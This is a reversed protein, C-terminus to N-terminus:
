IGGAFSRPAGPDAAMTRAAQYAALPFLYVRGAPGAAGICPGSPEPGVGAGTNGAYTSAADGGAPTGGGAATALHARQGRLATQVLYLFGTAEDAASTM